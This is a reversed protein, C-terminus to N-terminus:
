WTNSPKRPFVIEQSIDRAVEVKSQQHGVAELPEWDIGIFVVQFNLKAYSPYVVALFVQGVGPLRQGAVPSITLKLLHWHEPRLALRPLKIYSPLKSGIRYM